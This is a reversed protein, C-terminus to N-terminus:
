FREDVNTVTLVQWREDDSVRSTDAPEPLRDADGAALRRVVEHASSPRDAPYKALLELVLSELDAPLGPRLEGPPRPVVNLHQFM